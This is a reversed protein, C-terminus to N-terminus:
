KGPNKFGGEPKRSATKKHRWYSRLLLLLVGVCGAKLLLLPWPRFGARTEIEILDSLGFLLFAAAAMLRIKRGETHRIFLFFMLCAFSTWLLSEGFNFWQDFEWGRM